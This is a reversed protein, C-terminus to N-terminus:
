EPPPRRRAYPQPNAAENGRGADCCGDRAGAGIETHTTTDRSGPLRPPRPTGARFGLDVCRERDSLPPMAITLICTCTVSSCLTQRCFSAGHPPNGDALQYPPSDLLHESPSGGPVTQARAGATDPRKREPLPSPARRWAAYRASANTARSPETSCYATSHLQTAPPPLPPKRLPRLRDSRYISRQGERFDWGSGYPRARTALIRRLLPQIWHASTLCIEATADPPQLQAREPSWTQGDACPRDLGDGHVKVSRAPLARAGRRPQLPPSARRRTARRRSPRRAPALPLAQITFLRQRLLCPSFGRVVFIPAARSAQRPSFPSHPTSATESSRDHSAAGAHGYSVSQLRGRAQAVLEPLRPPLQRPDSRARRLSALPPARSDM